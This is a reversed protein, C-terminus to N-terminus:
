FRKGIKKKTWDFSLKQENRKLDRSERFKQAEKEKTSSRSSNMYLSSAPCILFLQSLERWFTENRSFAGEGERGGKWGGLNLLIMLNVLNVLNVLNELIVLSVLLLLNLLIALLLYINMLIM